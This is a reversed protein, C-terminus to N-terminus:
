VIRRFVTMGNHSAELRCLIDRVRDAPLHLEIATLEYIYERMSEGSAAFDTNIHQELRAAIANREAVKRRIEPKSGRYHKRPVRVPYAIM